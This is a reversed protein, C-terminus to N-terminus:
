LCKLYRENKDKDLIHEDPHAVFANFINIAKICDLKELDINTSDPYTLHNGWKNEDSNIHLDPFDNSPKYDFRVFDSLDKSNRIEYSYKLTFVKDETKPYIIEKINISYNSNEYNKFKGMDINLVVSSLVVRSNRKKYKVKIWKEIDWDCFRNQILEINKEFYDEISISFIKM